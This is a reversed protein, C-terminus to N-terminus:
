SSRDCSKGPRSQGFSSPRGCRKSPRRLAQKKTWRRDEMPKDRKRSGIRAGSGTAATGTACRRGLYAIRDDSTQLKEEWDGAGEPKGPDYTPGLVRVKKGEFGEKEEYTYEAM